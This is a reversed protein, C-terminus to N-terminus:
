LNGEPRVPMVPRSREGGSRWRETSPPLRFFLFPPQGWGGFPPPATPLAASGTHCYPRLPVVPRPSPSGKLIAPVGQLSLLSVTFIHVASAHTCLRVRHTSISSCLRHSIDAHLHHRDLRIPSDIPHPSLFRSPFSSYLYTFIVYHPVSHCSLLSCLM